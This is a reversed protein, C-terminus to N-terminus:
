WAGNQTDTLVAELMYGASLSLECTFDITETLPKDLNTDITIPKLRVQPATFTLSPHSATGITVDSNVIAISMAQITNELATTELTTDEYRRVLKGTVGWSETEFQAPDIFGLPTYPTTKRTIKLMLSILNTATATTLGSVTTALKFTVHKSTFRNEAVYAPIDTSPVAVNAMGDATFEVFGGAKVDIEFDSLTGRAYRRTAASNSRVFTHTVPSNNQNTTFTNNYVATETGNLASSFTGFINNLLYGSSIDTVEGKMKLVAYEETVESDSLDEVRDLASKDEAVTTKDNLSLSMHRAWTVPAQATGQTTEAASIGFADRRGIFANSM